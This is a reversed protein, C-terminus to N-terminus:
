KGGNFLIDNAKNYAIKVKLAKQSGVVMIAEGKKLFPIEKLLSPKIKDGLMSEYMPLTQPSSNFIFIVTMLNFLTTLVSNSSSDGAYYEYPDQTANLVLAKWKRMERYMVNITPLIFAKSPDSSILNHSEDIVVMTHTSLNENMGDIEVKKREKRGHLLAHNWMTIVANYLLANHTGDNEIYKSIDWFVVREKSLDRVNTHKNFIHGKTIIMNKIATKISSLNTEYVYGRSLAKENTEIWSLLDELLPYEEPKHETVPRNEGAKYFGHWAGFFLDIITDFGVLESGSMNNNVFMLLNKINSKFQAFSQEYDIKFDDTASSAMPQMPNIVGFKDSFPDVMIGNWKKVLRNYEGNKSLGRINDGNAYAQLILLKLLTSKGFGLSGFAGTHFSSRWENVTFPNFKVIDNTDSEGLIFGGKDRLYISDFPYGGALARNSVSLGERNWYLSRQQQDSVTDFKAKTENGQESSYITAEFGRRELEEIIQYSKEELAMPTKGAVFIRSFTEKYGVSGSAVDTAEKNIKEYELELERKKTAEYAFAYQGDLEKISGNIEKIQEATQKAKFDLKGITKEIDTLDNLWFYLPKEPFRTIRIINEYSNGSKVYNLNEQYTGKPLVRSLLKLDYGEQEYARVVEKVPVKKGVMSSLGYRQELVKKRKTKVAM